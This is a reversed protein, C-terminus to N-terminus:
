FSIIGTAWFTIIPVVSLYNQAVTRLKHWEGDIGDIIIYASQNAAIRQMLKHHSTM